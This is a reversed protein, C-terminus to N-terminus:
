RMYGAQGIMLLRVEKNASTFGVTASKFVRTDILLLRTLKASKLPSKLIMEVPIHPQRTFIFRAMSMIQVYCHSTLLLM